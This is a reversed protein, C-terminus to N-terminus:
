ITHRLRNERLVAREALSLHSEIKDQEGSSRHRASNFGRVSVLLTENERSKM